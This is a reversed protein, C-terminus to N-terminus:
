TPILCLLNKNVRIMKILVHTLDLDGKRVLKEVNELEKEIKYKLRSKIVSNQISTRQQLLTKENLSDFCIIDEDLLIKIEKRLILNKSYGLPPCIRPDYFSHLMKEIRKLVEKESM